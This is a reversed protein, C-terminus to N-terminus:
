LIVQAPIPIVGYGMGVHGGRLLFQKLSRQLSTNEPYDSVNKQIQGFVREEAQPETDDEDYISFLSQFQLIGSDPALLAPLERALLWSHCCFAAYNKPEFAAFFRLADRLSACLEDKRLPEGAPIHIALVPTGENVHFQGTCITQELAKPQYQLRGIRYIEMRLFHGCWGWEILGPRGTRRECEASWIALDRFTDFFIADPIGKARYQDLTLLAWRLYLALVQMEADPLEQMRAEFAAADRLFLEHMERAFAESVCIKNLAALTKEPLQLRYSLESRTM